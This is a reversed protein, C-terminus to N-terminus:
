FNTQRSVVVGCLTANGNISQLQPTWVPNAAKLFKRGGEIILQKFTAADDDDLRVVVYDGHKADRDPDVIVIDGENFAPQMSVGQVRLAYMNKNESKRTTAFPIWEDAVGPLHPDEVQSWDGAQVWSIIPVDILYHRDDAQANPKGEGTALWTASVGLCKALVHTFQSSEPNRREIASVASQSIKACQALEEQGIGVLRRAHKLREGLSMINEGQGNKEKVLQSLTWWHPAGFQHVDEFHYQHEDMKLDLAALPTWGKLARLRWCRSWRLNFLQDRNIEVRIAPELNELGFFMEKQERETRHGAWGSAIDDTTARGTATTNGTTSGLPAPHHNSRWAGKTTHNKNALMFGPIKEGLPNKILNDM